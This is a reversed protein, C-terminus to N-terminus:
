SNSFKAYTTTGSQLFSKFKLTLAHMEPFQSFDYKNVSYQIAEFEKLAVKTEPLDNFNTYLSTNLYM